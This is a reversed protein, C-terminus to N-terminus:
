ARRCRRDALSTRISRVSSNSSIGWDITRALKVLPHCMDVIADLRSRLLDTQGSDRRQKPRM